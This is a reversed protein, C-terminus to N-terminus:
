FVVKIGRCKPTEVRYEVTQNGFTRSLRTVQFFPGPEAPETEAATQQTGATTAPTSATGSSEEQKNGCGAATLLTCALLIAAIRRIKM